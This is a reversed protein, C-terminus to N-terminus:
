RLELQNVIGSWDPEREESGITTVHLDILTHCFDASNRNGLVDSLRNTVGHWLKGILHLLDDRSDHTCPLWDFTEFKM